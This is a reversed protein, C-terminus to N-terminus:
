LVAALVIGVFILALAINQKEVIHETVSAGHTIAKFAMVSFSVGFAARAARSVLMLFMSGDTKTPDVHSLYVSAAILMALPLRHRRLGSFFWQKRDM